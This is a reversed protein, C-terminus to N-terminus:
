NYRELRDELLGIDTLQVCYTCDERKCDHDFQLLLFNQESDSLKCLEEETIEGMKIIGDLLGQRTEFYITAEDDSWKSM